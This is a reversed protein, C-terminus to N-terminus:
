TSLGREAKFRALEREAAEARAEAVRRREEIIQAEAEDARRKETLRGAEAEDARRKAALRMAEAEDAERKAALRRAEAEDARAEAEDAERKAALRRDEAEDARRREGARREEAALRRDEVEDYTLLNEGKEPDRFRLAGDQVHLELGLVRSPLRGAANARVPRYRRGQLRHGVLPTSLELGEPDFLWCERVGLYEYTRWKSGVDAESTDESLMEMVLDPLPNEWLRYSTRDRRWEARLAVFLDPVLVKTTDGREYPMTLDSAVTANRYRYQLATCWRSTQRQHDITQSMGDEVPYGDEDCYVPPVSVYRYLGDDAHVPPVQRHALEDNIESQRTAKMGSGYWPQWAERHLSSRAWGRPADALSM